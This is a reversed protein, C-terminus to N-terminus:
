RETGTRSLAPRRPRSPAPAAAAQADPTRWAGHPIAGKTAREIDEAFDVDFRKTSGTLARQVKLRDLGNAECFAPVSQGARDLMERLRRAGETLGFKPPRKLPKPM